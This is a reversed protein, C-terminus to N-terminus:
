TTDSLDYIIQWALCSSIGHICHVEALLRVKRSNGSNDPPTPNQGGARATAASLEPGNRLNHATPFSQGHRCPPPKYPSATIASGPSQRSFASGVCRPM